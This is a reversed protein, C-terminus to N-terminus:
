RAAEHLALCAYHYMVKTSLVTIWTWHGPEGYPRGYSVCRSSIKLQVVPPEALVSRRENYAQSIVDSADSFRSSGTNESIRLQRADRGSSVNNDLSSRPFRSSRDLTEDNDNTLFFNLPSTPASRCPPSALCLSLSLSPFTLARNILSFALRVNAVKGRRETSCTGSFAFHRVVSKILM